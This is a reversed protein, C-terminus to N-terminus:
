GISAASSRELRSHEEMIERVRKLMAQQNLTFDEVTEDENVPGRYKNRLALTAISVLSGIAFGTRFPSKTLAKWFSTDRNLM